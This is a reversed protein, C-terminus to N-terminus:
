PEACQAKEAPMVQTKEAQVAAVLPWVWLQTRLFGRTRALYSSTRSQTQPNVSM